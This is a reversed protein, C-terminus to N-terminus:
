INRKHTDPSLLGTPHNNAARTFASVDVHHGGAM